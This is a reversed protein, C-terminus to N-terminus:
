ADRPSPSTYLLCGCRAVIVARAFALLIDLGPDGGSEDVGPALAPLPLAGFQTPAAM